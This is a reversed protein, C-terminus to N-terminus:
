IDARRLRLANGIVCVSSVAMAAGAIMPSLMLGFFPYLVGAAIPVGAANYIFAFFLNQRINAMVKRSLRRATAIKMLDGAMLTMGASEVAVDAGTAMAIGVDAVALAPADNIGDGAMAVRHGENQLRKVVASKGEPLVDAVVEDIGLRRAVAHATTANDGTLMVLRLGDRHLADVAARTTEKIPDAVAVLGAAAGDVAVFMVTAGESRLTEAKAALDGAKIGLQELLATNGLAVDAGEVSGTVGKGTIAQFHSAPSLSLGRERAAAVIAEALPHESGAELSAALALLREEEMGLAVVDTLKPKGQTLTGTKDVVLVNITELQQLAEASRFLIGARAGRGTGVMISMPTALGLACPCAIILVSVAAILGRDLAPAPGWILWAGLAALACAIVAPVFWGAVKDALSQIPARSRQAQGVLQVIRALVTDSGIRGARMLFSGNGNVTAGTVADGQAKEVALPEGTIMSEDIATAGQTVTGDVPVKEGPRVRLIDGVRVADLPVDSENGADDVRRATAPTLDLLARIASNTQARARLELVQGLLVLTIIVGASEFYAPVVGMHHMDAPFIGPALVALLSFLFAMGTGIAILTFMNLHGTVVSRWGRVFFPQAAWLMIPLVLALEIWQRLKPAIWTNVPNGPIDAGMALVLLPVALVASVTLRMRMSDYEPNAEEQTVTQPELAMGCIPCDGPADRRIEPHMPCTFITSRIPAANAAELAMGCKPCTDPKDSTVGECMPCYYAAGAQAQAKRAAEQVRGSLYGEPDATFKERCRAGCFYYTTGEHDWLNKAGAITVSMGCVPDTAKEVDEGHEHSCGHHHSATM